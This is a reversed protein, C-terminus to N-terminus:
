CERRQPHLIFTGSDRIQAKVITQAKVPQAKVPKLRSQNLRSQNLRSQNLRSQNSGRRQNGKRWACHHRWARGSGIRRRGGGGDGIGWAARWLWIIANLPLEGLGFCTHELQLKKGNECNIPLPGSPTRYVNYGCLSFDVVVVLKMTRLHINIVCIKFKINIFLLYLSYTHCSM